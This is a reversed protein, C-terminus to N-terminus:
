DRVEEAIRLATTIAFAFICAQVFWAFWNYQDFMFASGFTILGELLLTTLVAVTCYHLQRLAKM